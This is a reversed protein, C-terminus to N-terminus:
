AGYFTNKSVPQSVSETGYFTNKPMGANATASAGAVLLGGTKKDVHLTGQERSQKVENLLRSRVAEVPTKGFDKQLNLFLNDEGISEALTNFTALAAVHWQQFADRRKQGEGNERRNWKEAFNEEPM